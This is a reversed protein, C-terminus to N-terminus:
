GELIEQAMNFLTNAYDELEAAESALTAIERFNGTSEMKSKKDAIALLTKDFEQDLMMILNAKTFKNM